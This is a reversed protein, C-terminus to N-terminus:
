RSGRWEIGVDASQRLRDTLQGTHHQLHRLNVLQHELKSIPYWPFGSEGAMLDMVEIADDVVGRCRLCYEVVDEVAYPVLGTADAPNSGFRHHGPRHKEWPVFDTESPRLYFDTYFIAHYAVQWFPNVFGPDAWLGRPCAEITALLMTLGAHYQNKLAGKLVMTLM